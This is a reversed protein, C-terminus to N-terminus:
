TYLMYRLELDVFVVKMELSKSYKGAFHPSKKANKHHNCCYEDPPIM